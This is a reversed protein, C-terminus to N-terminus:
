KGELSRVSASARQSCQVKGPCRDPNIWDRGPGSLRVQEPRITVVRVLPSASRNACCHARVIGPCYQDDGVMRMERGRDALADGPLGCEDPPDRRLPERIGPRAAPGPWPHDDAGTRHWVLQRREDPGPRHHQDPQSAWGGACARQRVSAATEPAPRVQGGPQRAQRPDPHPRHAKSGVPPHLKGGAVRQNPGRSDLGEQCGVGAPHRGTWRYSIHPAEQRPVGHGTRDPLM